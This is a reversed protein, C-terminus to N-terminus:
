VKTKMANFRVYVEQSMHRNKRLDEKIITEIEVPDSSPLSLSTDDASLLTMGTLSGCINNIYILFLKQELESGQHVGATKTAFM